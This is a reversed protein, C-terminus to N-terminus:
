RLALKIGRLRQRQKYWGRQMQILSISLGSITLAAISEIIADTPNASIFIAWPLMALASAVWTAIGFFIGLSWSAYIALLIYIFREVAPRSLGLFSTISVKGIVPISATLTHYYSVTMVVFLLTIFCIHFVRWRNSM